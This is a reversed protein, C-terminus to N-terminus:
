RTLVRVWAIWEDNVEAPMRGFAARFAKLGTGDDIYGDRWGSYFLM